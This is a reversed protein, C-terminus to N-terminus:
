KVGRSKLFEAKAQQQANSYIKSIRSLKDYSNDKGYDKASKYSNSSFLASLASASARGMTQQYKQFEVETLMYQKGNIPIEKTPATGWVGSNGTQQYLRMLEKDTTTEKNEGVYGPSLKSELIKAGLSRGQFNEIPKGFSDVKAPLVMSLGPIKAIMKKGAAAVFNSDKTNRQYPDIIRADQGLETPIFQSPANAVTDAIGEAPNYGSLMDSLGAMYSQQFFVNAGGVAAAPAMSLKDLFDKKDKGASYADASAALLVGAPTIWSYTYSKGDIYFSYPQMGQLKQAAAVKPNSSLKGTILGKAALAFAFISIGTGTLTRALTDVFRKQDWTSEGVKGWLKVSRVLGYPSYDLFKDFMNSPTQVFPMSIDGLIGLSKRMEMARKSLDSNNQFVRDLAFLKAETITDPNAMNRGLIKLEAIRGAYAAEYFMRDGAQLGLKTIADAGNLVKSEFVKGRAFEHSTPSTDVGYKIDKRMEVFSKKVGVLKAKTIELNPAATTRVGTEKGLPNYWHRKSSVIKDILTGPIDKVDELINFTLNGLANHSILTKGNLLLSIRRLALVKNRNTKPIKNGVIQVAKDTYMRQMYDDTEAAAKKMFEYIQNIDDSNLTGLGYKQKVLNAINVDDFAGLNILEQIRDLLPKKIPSGNSPKLMAKLVTESKQKLIANYKKMIRESLKIASEKDIGNETILYDTIKQLATDKNSKSEKIIKNLDIGIDKSTKKIIGGIVNDLNVKSDMLKEAIIREINGKLQIAEGDTAGTKAILYDAIENVTKKENGLAANKILSQLKNDTDMAAKTFAKMLTKQSYMGGGLNFVTGNLYEDLSDLIAPNSKYKERIINVAKQWVKAYENHNKMANTLADIADEGTQSSVNLKPLPSEKALKFLENVVNQTDKDIVSPKKVKVTSDVKQALLEEPTLKVKPNAESATKAKKAKYIKQIEDIEPTIETATQKASQEQINEIATKVTKTEEEVIKGLKTKSKKGFVNTEELVSNNSNEVTRVSKIVGGEPTRSYKDLAQLSQGADHSKQDVNKAWNAFEEKAAFEEVSNEAHSLKHGYDGLIGMATDVDESGTFSRDARGLDYVEADFDQLRQKAINLSKQESIIEHTFDKNDLSDKAVQDLMDTNHITNTKFESVKEKYAQNKAGLENSLPFQTNGQPIDLTANDASAAMNVVNPIDSEGTIEIFDPQKSSELKDVIKTFDDIFTQEHDLNLTRIDSIESKMSAVKMFIEAQEAPHIIYDPFLEPFMGSAEDYIQDISPQARNKTLYMGKGFFARNGNGEKNSFGNAPSLDTGSYIHQGRLYQKARVVEDPLALKVPKTDRYFDDYFKMVDEPTAEGNVYKIVMNSIEDKKAAKAKVPINLDQVMNELELKMDSNIIKKYNEVVNLPNADVKPIGSTIPAKINPAINQELPISGDSRMTHAQPNITISPDRMPANKSYIPNDSKGFMKEANSMARKETSNALAGRTIKQILPSAFKGLLPVGASFAANGVTQLAVDQLIQSNTKGADKGLNITGPTQVAENLIFDAVGQRVIPNKIANLLPTVKSIAGGIGNTLLMQGILGTAGGLNGPTFVGTKSTDNIGGKQNAATEFAQRRLRGELPMMDSPVFNLFQNAGGQMYAELPHDKYYKVWPDTNAKAIDMEKQQEATPVYARDAATQARISLPEKKPQADILDQLTPKDITEARLSDPIYQTPQTLNPIQGTPFKSLSPKASQIPQQTPQPEYTYHPIEPAPFAAKIYDPTNTRQTNTRIFAKTIYEPHKM